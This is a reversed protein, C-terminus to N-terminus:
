LGRFDKLLELKREHEKRMEELLIVDYTMMSEDDSFKMKLFRELTNLKAQTFSDILVDSISNNTGGM